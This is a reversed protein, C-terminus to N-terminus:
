QNSHKSSGMTVSGKSDPIYMKTSAQASVPESRIVTPDLPNQALHRRRTASDILTVTLALVVGLVAPQLLLRMPELFWLSAVSFLFSLVLLSFVNRTYPFTWFVFGLLLTLGAGILLILSQNMTRFDVKQIQGFGRFAYYHKGDFRFESPVPGTEYQSRESLYSETLQRNWFILRRKWEFQPDLAPYTFLHNGMPLMVEWTTEDVWVSKPFEPFAVATQQTLGFGSPTPQRYRISLIPTDDTTEPLTLTIQQDLGSIGKKIQTLPKGDILFHSNDFVSGPPLSFLVRSPPSNLRFEAWTDTNGDQLFRTRFWAREIVYQQSSDALLYDLVLPVEEIPKDKPVSVWLSNRIATWNPDKRVQVTEVPSVLCRVLSYPFNELTMLPLDVVKESGEMDVQFRYDFTVEFKGKLPEPLATRLSGAAFTENLLQDGLRIEVSESVLEPSFLEVLVEPLKIELLQLRGYEVDFNVKQRISMEGSAIEQIEVVSETRVKREQATISMEIESASKPLRVRQSIDEAPQSELGYDSLLKVTRADNLDLQQLPEDPNQNLSVSLHDVARVEVLPPETRTSIATPFTVPVAVTKETKGLGTELDKRFTCSLVFQTQQPQPWQLTVRDADLQTSVKGTQTEDSDISVFEWGEKIYEPWDLELANISGRKFSVLHHVHLLLDRDRAILQYYPKVVYFPDLPAIEVNLGYPQKFYAFATLPTGVGFSRVESVSTRHVDKSEDTLPQIRFGEVEDIRIAGEERVAGSVEFGDIVFQDGMKSLPRSLIWKLEFRKNQTNKLRIKVWGERDPDLEHSLYQEGTISILTFDTPLRVQMDQSTQEYSDIGQQVLLMLKDGAPKLHLRTGVQSVTTSSVAPNHWSIDLRSGAVSMTFITSDATRTVPLETVSKNTILVSNPSSTKLRVDAEFQPPLVPLSLTLSSLGATKKLPAWMSFKLIHQGVGNLKWFMGDDISKTTVDPMEEGPGTHERSWVHAQSFRLPISHWGPENIEIGVTAIVNVRDSIVEADLKVQSLYFKPVGNAEPLTENAPTTVPASELTKPVSSDQAFLHRSSCVGSFMVAWFAIQVSLRLMHPRNTKESLVIQESMRNM